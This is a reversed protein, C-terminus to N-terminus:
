CSIPPEPRMEATGTPQRAITRRVRDLLQKPELPKTLLNLNNAEIQQNQILGDSYGSIFLFPLDPKRQKIMKATDWGSMGPMVMDQVVLQIKDAHQSFLELAQHGDAAQIVRYGFQELIAATTARVAPEDEVLLITEDGRPLDDAPAARKVSQTASIPLLITFCSGTSPTSNVSIGGAHQKVIGYVMSLGLGSGKGVEKTTFFPEFIRDQINGPIGTGTDQVVIQCYAGPKIDLQSALQQDLRTHSLRITLTGGNPMADCANLALNMLAQELMHRDIEVHLAESELQIVLEINEGIVRRLFSKFGTVLECISEVRRQPEHKRSFALLRQTLSSARKAADVIMRVADAHTSDTAMQLQLMSGFGLIVTLINNFDHAIGGALTGVAEMKQTHRLREELHRESTIDYCSGIYGSFTGDPSYFPTGHDRILRWGGNKHRLRYELAFPQRQRFASLYDAICQDVDDPHVATSWGDGLEDEMSRGTFDLWTKNFWDCQGDLGARWILAPFNDLIPIFFDRFRNLENSHEVLLRELAQQGQRLKTETERIRLMAKIQAVLETADVPKQLFVDAGKELCRSRLEPTSQQATMMIIPIDCTAPQARLAATVELGDTVPMHYDILIVDPQWSCATDVVQTPDQLERHDHGPLRKRIINRCVALNVASDDVVLIKM